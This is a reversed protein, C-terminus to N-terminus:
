TVGGGGVLNIAGGFLVVGEGFCFNRVGGAFGLFSKELSKLEGWGVGGGWGSAQLPPPHMGHCIVM